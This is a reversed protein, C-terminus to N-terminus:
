GEPKTRGRELLMGLVARGTDTLVYRRTASDRAILGRVDLTQMTRSLIGAAAHDIDTAACFLAIRERATLHEAITALIRSM